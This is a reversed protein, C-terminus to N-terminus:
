HWFSHQSATLVAELPGIQLGALWARGGVELPRSQALLESLAPLMLLNATAQELESLGSGSSSIRGSGSSSSSSSRSASLDLGVARLCPLQLPDIRALVAAGLSRPLDLQELRSAKQVAAALWGVHQSLAAAVNPLPRGYLVLSCIATAHSDLWRLLCPLRDATLALVNLQVRAWLGAAELSAQLFSKSVLPLVRCAPCLSHLPQTLTRLPTGAPSRGRTPPSRTAGDAVLQRAVLRRPDRRRLQLTDEPGDAARLAAEHLQLAECFISSVVHAPLVDILSLQSGEDGVVSM